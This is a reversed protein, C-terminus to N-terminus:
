LKIHLRELISRIDNTKISDLGEIKINRKKILAVLEKRSM